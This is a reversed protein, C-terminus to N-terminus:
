RAPAAWLSRSRPWARSCSSGPGCGSGLPTSSSEPTRAASPVALPLGAEAHLSANDLTVVLFDFPQESLAAPDTIAEYGAVRDLSHNDYSYVTQPRSLREQHHPRVLFSVRAGARTLDYATNVGVSGAGVIGVSAPSGIM